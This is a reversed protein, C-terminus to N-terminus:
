EVEYEGIIKRPPKVAGIHWDITTLSVGFKEMLMEKTWGEARLLKIKLVETPTLKKLLKPSKM